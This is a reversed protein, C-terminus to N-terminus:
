KIIKAFKWLKFIIPKTKDLGQGGYGADVYVAGIIAELFRDYRHFKDYQPSKNVYRSLELQDAIKIQKNRNVLSNRADILTGAGADKLSEFLRETIVMKIVTDGIYELRQYDEYIMAVSDHTTATKLIKPDNFWYGLKDELERLNVSM